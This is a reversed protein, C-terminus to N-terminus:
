CAIAVVNAPVTGPVGTVWGFGTVAQTPLDGSTWVQAQATSSAGNAIYFIGRELDASIPAWPNCGSRNKWSEGGWTEHGFQGPQPVTDFTWATKGTRADFARLTRFGYGSGENDVRVGPAGLKDMVSVVLPQLFQHDAARMWGSHLGGLTRGDYRMGELARAVAQPDILSFASRCHPCAHDKRIDVPAGCGTCTIIAVRQAIDDIEPKTLQRVFGKEVMFSSFASFRGHGRPCRYTVYRGGQALAVPSTGGYAAFMVGSHYHYGRLDALDFTVRAKPLRSAIWQLNSLAERLMPSPKLLM